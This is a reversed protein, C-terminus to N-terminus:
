FQIYTYFVYVKMREIESKKSGRFKKVRQSQCTVRSRWENEKKNRKRIEKGTEFKIKGYFEAGTYVKM